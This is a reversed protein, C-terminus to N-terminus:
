FTIYFKKVSKNFSSTGHKKPDVSDATSLPGWAKTAGSPLCNKKFLSLLQLINKLDFSM